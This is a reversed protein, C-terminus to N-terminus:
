CNMWLFILSNVSSGNWSNMWLSVVSPTEIDKIKRYHTQCRWSRVETVPERASLRDDETIRQGGWSCFSKRRSRMIERHVFQNSRSRRIERHVSSRVEGDAM